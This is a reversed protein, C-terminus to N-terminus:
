LKQIRNLTGDSEREREREREVLLLIYFISVYCIVIKIIPCLM